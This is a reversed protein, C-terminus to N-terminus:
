EARRDHTGNEGPAASEAFLGIRQVGESQRRDDGKQDIRGIEERDAEPQRVGDTEREDNQRGTQFPTQRKQRVRERGCERCREGRFQKGKGEDNGREPTEIKQLRVSQM